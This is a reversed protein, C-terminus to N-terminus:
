RGARLSQYEAYLAELRKKTAFESRGLCEAITAIDVKRYYMMLLAKDDVRTWLLGHRPHKVKRPLNLVRVAYDQVAKAPRNLEAAIVEPPNDSWMKTLLERESTTWHRYKAM